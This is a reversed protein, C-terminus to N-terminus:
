RKKRKKPNPNKTGRYVTSFSVGHETAVKRCAETYGVYRNMKQEVERQYSVSRRRAAERKSQAGRKSGDQQKKAIKTAPAFRAIEEKRAAAVIGDELLREFNALTDRIIPVSKALVKEDILFGTADCGLADKVAQWVRSAFDVQVRLTLPGRNWSPSTRPFDRFTGHLYHCYSNFRRDLNDHVVPYGVAQRTRDQRAMWILENAAHRLGKAARLGMERSTPKTLM